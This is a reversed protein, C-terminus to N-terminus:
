CSDRRCLLISFNKTIFSNIGFYRHFDNLDFLSFRRYTIITTGSILLPIVIFIFITNDIISSVFIGCILCAAINICLVALQRINNVMLSQLYKWQYFLSISFFLFTGSVNAIVASYYGVSQYLLLFVVINCIMNSIQLLVTKNIQDKAILYHYVPITTSCILFSSVIAYSTISIKTVNTGLYWSIFPRIIFLLMVICPLVVFLAKQATDHVILRIRQKDTTSAIAPFLPYFIQEVINKLQNRFRLAIDFVGVESIGILHSILIIIVPERFINILGNLYIKFVLAMQKGAVRVINKHIQYLHIRGWYKFTMVLTLLFWVIVAFLAAFGVERLGFGLLLLTIFGGRYIFTYILQLYNNLFVMGLGDLIGRFLNGFLQIIVSIFICCFLLSTEDLYHVPVNLIESLIFRHFTLGLAAFPILISALLSISTLIDYHSEEVKGQEAIYKTLAKNLRLDMISNASTIVM